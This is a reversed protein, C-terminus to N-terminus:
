KLRKVFFHRIHTQCELQHHIAAQRLGLSPGLVNDIQIELGSQADEVVEESFVLVEALISQGRSDEEYVCSLNSLSEHTYKFLHPTLLNKCHLTPFPQM